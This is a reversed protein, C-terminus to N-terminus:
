NLDSDIFYRTGLAAAGLALGAQTLQYVEVGEEAAAAAAATSETNETAMTASQHGSSSVSATAQATAGRDTTQAGAASTLSFEWGAEVFRNLAGQTRFLFVTRFDRMGMGIGGGITGVRMFTEKGARDVAVGYGDGGGVALVFMNLNTFVAYGVANDMKDRLQPNRVYLQALTQDRMNRVAARKDDVTAGHPSTCAALFMTAALFSLTSALYRARPM